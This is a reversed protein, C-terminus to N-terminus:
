SGTALVATHLAASAADRASAVHAWGHPTLTGLAAPFLGDQEKLIHEFLLHLAAVTDQPWLASPRDRFLGELAAHIREHETELAAIHDGHDAALEPFLGEEEVVTHPGLVALMLEALERAADLDAAECAQVLERSLERLRDHEATLEAIQDIQQCGCYECM